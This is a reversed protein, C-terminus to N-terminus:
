QKDLLTKAQSLKQRAEEFRVKNQKGEELVQASIDSIKTTFDLLKQADDLRNQGAARAASVAVNQLTNVGHAQLSDRLKRRENNIAQVSQINHAAALRILISKIQSFEQLSSSATEAITSFSAGQSLRIAELEAPATQVITELVLLRNEFLEVKQSFQKSEEIQLADGSQTAASIKQQEAEKAKALLSKGLDVYDQFAIVNTRYEKALNSMMKSDRILKQVEVALDKEMQQTLELLTKSKKTLLGGIHESSSELRKAVSSLKLTDLLAHYWKQKQSERISVELEGIDTEGIGKKLKTFLEFLVPSNGKTIEELLRDLALSIEKQRESGYLVLSEESAFLQEFEVPCSASKGIITTTTTSVIENKTTTNGFLSVPTIVQATNM